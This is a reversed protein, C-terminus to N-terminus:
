APGPTSPRRGLVHEDAVCFVFVDGSFVGGVCVQILQQRIGGGKVQGAAQQDVRLALRVGCFYWTRCEPLRSSTAARSRDPVSSSISSRTPLSAPMTLAAAILPPPRGGTLPRRTTATVANGYPAGKWGANIENSM